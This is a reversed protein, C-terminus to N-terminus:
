GEEGKKIIGPRPDLYPSLVDLIQKRTRYLGSLEGHLQVAYWQRTPDSPPKRGKKKYWAKLEQRSPVADVYRRVVPKGALPELSAGLELLPVVWRFWCNLVHHAARSKMIAEMMRELVVKGTRPDPINLDVKREEINSRVFFLLTDATELAHAGHFHHNAALFIGVWDTELGCYAMMPEVFCTRLYKHHVHLLKTVHDVPYKGTELLRAVVGGRGYHIAIRLVTGHIRFRNHPVLHMCAKKSFRETPHVGRRLLFDVIDTSGSQVAAVFAYKLGLSVEEDALDALQRSDLVAVLVDLRMSLAAHILTEGKVGIVARSLLFKAAELHGFRVAVDLSNVRHYRLAEPELGFARRACTAEGCDEAAHSTLLTAPYPGDQPYWRGNTPHGCGRREVETELFCHWNAAGTLEFQEAELFELIQVDGARAALLAFPTHSTDWCGFPGCHWSSGSRDNIRENSPETADVMRPEIRRCIQFLTARPQPRWGGAIAAGLLPRTKVEPREYVPPRRSSLHEDDYARWADVYRKEETIVRGYTYRRVIASDFAKCTRVLRVLSPLDLCDFIDLILEWPLAHIGTPQLSLPGASDM